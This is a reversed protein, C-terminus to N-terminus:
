ICALLKVYKYIWMLHATYPFAQIFLAMTLIHRYLKPEKFRKEVFKLLLIPILTTFLRILLGSEFPLEMISVMLPNSEEVVDLVNIGWYTICYDAIM